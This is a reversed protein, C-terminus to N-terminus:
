ISNSVLPRVRQFASHQRIVILEGTIDAIRAVRTLSCNCAVRVGTDLILQQKEKM